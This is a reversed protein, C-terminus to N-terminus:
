NKVNDGSLIKSFRTKKRIFYSEFFRYSLGAIVISLTISFIYQVIINEINFYMLSKLVIVIAIPHFMYLGYSIKGLYNLTRNELNFITKKNSALNIIIIGFIIGYFEYHIHPIKVGFGMLVFLLTYTM